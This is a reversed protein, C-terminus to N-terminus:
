EPEVFQDWLREAIVAAEDADRCRETLIARRGEFLQVAIVQQETTVLVCQMAMAQWMIHLQDRIRSRLEVNKARARKARERLATTQAIIDDVRAGREADNDEKKITM